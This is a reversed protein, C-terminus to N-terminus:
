LTEEIQKIKTLARDAQTSSGLRYAILLDDKAKLLKMLKDNRVELFRARERAVGALLVLDNEAWKLGCNGLREALELMEVKDDDFYNM